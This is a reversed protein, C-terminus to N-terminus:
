RPSGSCSPLTTARCADAIGAAVIAALRDYSRTAQLYPLGAAAQQRAAPLDDLLASLAEAFDEVTWPALRGAGSERIVRAQDPSDNGVCPMGLALYELIKTPSSVDLIANRPIPSVAADAGTLLSWAADSPLWGTVHVADALGLEAARERIAEVDAAQPSDGILLLRAAPHRRRVAALVDVLKELERLRELIGLYAIVPMGTWGPLRTPRIAPSLIAEPAIGMPVPTCHAAPVGLGTLYDRMADSQAFVHRCRPLVFRYLLRYELEGKGRLLWYRLRGLRLGLSRCRELRGESMLYSMWYSVPLGRWRAILVALCGVIVMDRVIVLDTQGPRAAWLEAIVARLYRWEAQWRRGATSIRRLRGPWGAPPPADEEGPAAKGVIDCDIGHAPLARGFLTQVDHRHSPLTEPVLYLARRRETM